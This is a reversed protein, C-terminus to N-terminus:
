RDVDEDEDGDADKKEASKKKAGTSEQSAHPADAFVALDDFQSAADAKTWLGIGGESPFTSDHVDLLKEGNLWCLIHDGAQEVRITHWVGSPIKVSASELQKRAGNKVFYVRFNDELPNARCIYYNDKDQARWILGGGRDSEGSDAKMSVELTGDKFRTRDTWCLNFASGSTHNASTLALVNAGSKAGDKAIVQWTALPGEGHTAEVKWGPPLAGAADADFAMQVRPKENSAAAVVHGDQEPEYATKNNQSSCAVALSSVTVSMWQTRNM